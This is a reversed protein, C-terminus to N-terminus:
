AWLWHKRMCDGAVRRCVRSVQCPPAWMMVVGLGMRGRFAVFARYMKGEPLGAEVAVASQRRPVSLFDYDGFESM